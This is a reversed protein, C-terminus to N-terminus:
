SITKAFYVGKPTFPIKSGNAGEIHLNRLITFNFEANMTKKRRYM